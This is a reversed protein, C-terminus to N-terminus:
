GQQGTSGEEQLLGEKTDREVIRRVNDVSGCGDNGLDDHLIRDVVDGETPRPIEYNTVAM